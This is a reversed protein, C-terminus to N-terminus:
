EAWAVRELGNMACLRQAAEEVGRRLAPTDRVCAEPWFARVALAGGQRVAEIRGAFREGRLVPLM